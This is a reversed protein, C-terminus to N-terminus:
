KSTIDLTRWWSGSMTRINVEELTYRNDLYKIRGHERSTSSRCDGSISISLQAASEITSM